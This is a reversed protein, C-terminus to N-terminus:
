RAVAARGAVTALDAADDDLVPARGPTAAAKRM